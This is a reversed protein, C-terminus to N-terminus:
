VNDVLFAFKLSYLISYVVLELLWFIFCILTLRAQSSLVREDRREMGIAANHKCGLQTYPHSPSTNEPQCCDSFLIFYM